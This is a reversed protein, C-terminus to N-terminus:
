KPACAAAFRMTSSPLPTIMLRELSRKGEELDEFIPPYGLGRQWPFANNAAADAAILVGGYRPWPLAIQGACHGPIHLVELGGAFPPTNGESVTHEVETPSVGSPAAVRMIAAVLRNMLGPAPRVGRMTKGERVLAADLPHMWAPAGTAEKLAALSGAHDAHWHTVVITSVEESRRGLESLAALVKDESGPMGTDILTVTKDVLLYANVLGLSLRYLGPVVEQIDAM